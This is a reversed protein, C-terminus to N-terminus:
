ADVFDEHTRMKKRITTTREDDKTGKNTSDPNPDFNSLTKRPLMNDSLFSLSKYYSLDSKRKKEAGSGRKSGNGYDRKKISSLVKTFEVNKSFSQLRNLVM